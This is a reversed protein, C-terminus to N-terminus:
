SSGQHRRLKKKRVGRATDNVTPLPTILTILAFFILDKYIKLNVVLLAYSLGIFLVEPRPTKTSTTSPSFKAM